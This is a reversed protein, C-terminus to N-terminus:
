CRNDTVPHIVDLSKRKLEERDYASNFREILEVCVDRRSLQVHIVDSSNKITGDDGDDDDPRMLKM